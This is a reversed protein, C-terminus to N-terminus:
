NAARVRMGDHLLTENDVAVVDGENLGQLIEVRTVSSIGTQVPRRAIKGDQVLFVFGGSGGGFLAERPITPVNRREEALIEVNLNMNPLLEIKPNELLCIVEGVKRTGLEKIESPLRDVAGQWQRGPLGDWTVQVPQGQSVKGLDPEDVYVRVRIRRFDGVRMLLDGTRVFDGQRVAISYIRGGMPALVTSARERSQVLNLAARSADVAAEAKAVEGPDYRHNQKQELIAIDAQTKALRDRSQQLEIRAIAGKELLRENEAVTKAAQDRERRALDIQTQLQHLDLTTGGQKLLRLAEEADALEARAHELDSPIQKQILQFLKQGQRVEDGEHLPVEGVQGEVEPRVDRFDVPEAKGNTVVGSHIDQREVKAMAISLVSRSRDWRIVVGTAVLILILILWRWRWKRNAM